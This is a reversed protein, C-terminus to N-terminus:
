RRRARGRRTRSLLPPPQTALPSVLYDTTAIYGGVDDTLATHRRRAAPEPGVAKKRAPPWPERAHSSQQLGSAKPAARGQRRPSRTRSRAGAASPRSRS